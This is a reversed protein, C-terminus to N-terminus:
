LYFYKVEIEKGLLCLIADKVKEVNHEEWPHFVAFFIERQIETEKKRAAGLVIETGKLHGYASRIIRVHMYSVDAFSININGVFFRGGRIEQKDRNIEADPNLSYKRLNTITDGFGMILLVLFGIWGPATFSHMKGLSILLLLLIVCKIFSNIFPLKYPILAEWVSTRYKINGEKYFFGREWISHSIPSEPPLLDKWKPQALSPGIAEVNTYVPKTIIERQQLKENRHPQKNLPAFLRARLVEAFKEAGKFEIRFVRGDFLEMDAAYRNPYDVITGDFFKTKFRGCSEPANRDLPFDHLVVHYRNERLDAFWEEIPNRMTEEHPRNDQGASFGRGLIQISRVDKVEKIPITRRYPTTSSCGANVFSDCYFYIKKDSVRIIFNASLFFGTLLIAAGFVITALFLFIGFSGLDKNRFSYMMTDYVMPFM